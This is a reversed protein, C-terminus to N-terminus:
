PRLMRPLLGQKVRAEERALRRQDRRLLRQSARKVLVLRGECLQRMGKRGPSSPREPDRKDPPLAPEFEWLKWHTM